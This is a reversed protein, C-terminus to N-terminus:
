THDLAVKFVLQRLQIGCKWFSKTEPEIAMFCLKAKSTKAQQWHHWKITTEQKEEYKETEKEEEFLVELYCLVIDISEIGHFSGLINNM